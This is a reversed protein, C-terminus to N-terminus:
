WARTRCRRLQELEPAFYTASTWCGPSSSRSSAVQGQCMLAMIVARRLLDDRVAGARAGGALPGPRARRLVRRADQREPQLPAWAGIASVGLGVLDCDPQTSYGQFNRHLRGQRKAVALADGPLAFHDMGIYVYGARRFGRHAQSLMAVQRRGRCTPPMSAGSRSSSTRCTRTPMCARHPRAAAAGGAGPHARVIGADAAAPRLDPRHQDLRLRAARAGDLQVVQEDPQVRNVAQQVDPDFDQVGFSIRNFGLAALRAAARAYVTRPDVEISCEAGPAM